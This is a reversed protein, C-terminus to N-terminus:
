VVNEIKSYADVAINEMQNKADDLSMAFLTLMLTAVIIYKLVMANSVITQVPQVM